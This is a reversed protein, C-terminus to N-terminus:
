LTRLTHHFSINKIPHFLNNTNIDHLTFQKKYTITHLEEPTDYMLKHHMCLTSFCAELFFLTHHLSAYDKLKSILTSSMRVACVMACFYPPPLNITIKNWHWDQNKGDPNIGYNNSLLDSKPYKNDLLLLTEESYFYVDDEIFWVFDYDLQSFFYLAKEWATIEKHLTFNLNKFGNQACLNDPIQIVGPYTVSNDDAVVFIDYKKFSSLFAIWEQSPKFCLLCVATKM